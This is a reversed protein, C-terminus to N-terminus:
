FGEDFRMDENAHKTAWDSGIKPPWGAQASRNCGVCLIRGNALTANGGQSKPVIHDLDFHSSDTNEYGCNTCWYNGRPNAAKNEALAQARADETFPQGATPGGSQGLGPQAGRNGTPCANHVLWHHEGVFYTHAEAVTLNYMTQGQSVIELGGVEGVGGDAQRVHVGPKLEAAPLWGREQTYFPHEPTTQVREGDLTLNVIVPDDHV